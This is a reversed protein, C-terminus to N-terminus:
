ENKLQQLRTQLRHGLQHCLVAADFWDFNVSPDKAADALTQLLRAEEGPRYRFLWRQDEKVLTLQKEANPAPTDHPMPM